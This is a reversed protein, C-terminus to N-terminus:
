SGGSRWSAPWWGPWWGSPCGSPCGSESRSSTDWGARLLGGFYALFIVSVLALRGRSLWDRSLVKVGRHEAYRVTVHGGVGVVSVLLVGYPFAARGGIWLAATGAVLGLWVVVQLGVASAENWVDRQREERFFPSGFDGVVGAWRVFRSESM